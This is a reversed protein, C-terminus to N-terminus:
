EGGVAATQPAVTEIGLTGALRQARSRLSAPVTDDAVIKQLLSGALDRKNLKIYSLAVMEGASGFWPNGAVALPKLRDVVAQPALTDFEITTQRLLALDRFPRAFGNDSAVTAYQAIAGRTDGKDLAVAALTLKATAEYGEIKSDAIQQLKAQAAPARAGGIDRLAQTLMEGQAGAVNREHQQWWLFGGLAALGLVVLVAAILGYRKWLNGIREKRVEEDVERMFAQENQPTLAL